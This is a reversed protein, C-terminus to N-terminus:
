CNSWWSMMTKGAGGTGGGRGLKGAAAAEGGETTEERSSRRSLYKFCLYPTSFLFVFFVHQNLVLLM